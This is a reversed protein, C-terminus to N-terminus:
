RRKAANRRVNGVQYVFTIQRGGFCADFIQLDRPVRRFGAQLRPRGIIPVYQILGNVTRQGCQAGVCGLLGVALSRQGIQQFGEVRQLTPSSKRPRM